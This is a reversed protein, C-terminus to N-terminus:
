WIEPLCLKANPRQPYIRPKLAYVDPRVSTDPPVNVGDILVWIGLCPYRLSNRVVKGWSKNQRSYLKSLKM